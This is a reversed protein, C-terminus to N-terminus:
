GKIFIVGAVVVSIVFLKFYLKFLSFSLLLYDAKM